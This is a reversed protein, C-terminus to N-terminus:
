KWHGRLASKERIETVPCGQVWIKGEGEGGDLPLFPHASVSKFLPQPKLDGWM